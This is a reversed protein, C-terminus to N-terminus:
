PPWLDQVPKRLYRDLRSCYLESLKMLFTGRVRLPTTDHGQVPRRENTINILRVPLKTEQRKSTRCIAHQDKEQAPAKKVPRLTDQPERTAEYRKEHLEKSLIPFDEKRSLRQDSKEFESEEGPFRNGYVREFRIM